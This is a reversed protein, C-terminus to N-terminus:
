NLLLKNLFYLEVEVWVSISFSCYLNVFRINKKNVKGPPFHITPENQRGTGGQGIYLARQHDISKLWKILQPINVYANDDLRLIWSTRHQYYTYLFKM